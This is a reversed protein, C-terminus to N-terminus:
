LGKLLDEINLGEAALTNKLEAFAGALKQLRKVQKRKEPDAVNTATSADLEMKEAQALMKAARARLNSARFMLWLTETAFDSRSLQQHVDEDYGLTRVDSSTLLGEANVHESTVVSRFPTLKAKEAERQAKKQEKTLKPKEVKANTPASKSGNKTAVAPAMHSNRQGTPRNLPGQPHQVSWGAPVAPWRTENYRAHLRWGDKELSFHAKAVRPNDVDQTADRERSTCGACVCGHFNMRSGYTSQNWLAIADGGILAFAARDQQAYWQM